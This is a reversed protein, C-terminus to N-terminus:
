GMFLNIEKIENCPPLSVIMEVVLSSITNHIYNWPFDRDHELAPSIKLRNGVCKMIM